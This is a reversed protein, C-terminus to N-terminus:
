ITPALSRAILLAPTGINGCFAGLWLQLLATTMIASHHLHQVPSPFTLGWSCFLSTARLSPRHTKILSCISSCWPILVLCWNSDSILSQIPKVNNFCVLTSNRLGDCKYIHIFRILFFFRFSEELFSGFYRWRSIVDIELMLAPRYSRFRRDHYKRVHERYRYQDPHIDKLSCAPPAWSCM